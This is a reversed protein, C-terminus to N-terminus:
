SEAKRMFIIALKGNEFIPMNERNRFSGNKRNDLKVQFMHYSNSPMVPSFSTQIYECSQPTHITLRTWQLYFMQEKTEALKAKAEGLVLFVEIFVNGKGLGRFLLHQVVLKITKCTSSSINVRGYFHVDPICNEKLSKM